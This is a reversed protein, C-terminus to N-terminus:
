LTIALNECSRAGFVRELHGLGNKPRVHICFAFMYGRFPGIYAWVPASFPGVYTYVSTNMQARRLPSLHVGMKQGLMSAFCLCKVGLHGLMPGFQRRFADLMAWCLYLSLHEDPGKM